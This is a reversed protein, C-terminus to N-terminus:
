NQPFTCLGNARILMEVFSYILKGWDIGLRRRQNIWLALQQNSIAQGTIVHRYTSATLGKVPLLKVPNIALQKLFPAKQWVLM